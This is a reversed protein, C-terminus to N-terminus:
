VARLFPASALKAQIRRREADDPPAHTTRGRLQCWTDWTPREAQIRWTKGVRAVALHGAAYRADVNRVTACARKLAARAQRHQGYTMGLAAELHDGVAIWCGEVSGDGCQRWREAQLYIWLRKALQHNRDFQRLTQWPIRVPAGEEIARRLWGDLEVSIRDQGSGHTRSQGVDLLGGRTEFDGPEGTLADIGYIQVTVWALRWLSSRLTAYDKGSPPGAYLDSGLEYLTPRMVGSPTPQRAWRECLWALVDFDPSTQLMGSAITVESLGRAEIPLALQRPGVAWLGARSLTRDARVSQLDGV